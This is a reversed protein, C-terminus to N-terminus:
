HQGPAGADLVTFGEIVVSKDVGPTGEVASLRRKFQADRELRQDRFMELADAGIRYVRGNSLRVLLVKGSSVMTGALPNRPRAGSGGRSQAM